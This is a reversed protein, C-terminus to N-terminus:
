HVKKWANIQEPSCDNANVAEITESFLQAINDLDSSKAKRITLQM